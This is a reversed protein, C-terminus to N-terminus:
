HAKSGDGYFQLGVDWSSIPYEATVSVALFGVLQFSATAM